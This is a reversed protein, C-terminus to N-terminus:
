NYYDSASNPDGTVSGGSFYFAFSTMGIMEGEEDVIGDRDNDLGDLPALATKLFTYGVAPPAEGYGGEDDNDANYAYGLHLLSDSGVYDDDFNGLDVDAFLGLYAETFPAKNKNILKYSYFTTNGGLGLRNFAHASGLVELGIPETKTRDHENGRDNMVWWLRQDGFLEPLDGGLLNYNNPDGDGDIVPAGLHWPWNKLNNSIEGTEQFLTLDEKRIEWIKDYSKCFTPPNGAEDLPGAWFEWAGYRTAAMRLEGDILGGVWIGAAFIATVGGGKPVEYVPASGRWFLGGNNYIGARVNGVDLIAQGLAPECTGVQANALNTF